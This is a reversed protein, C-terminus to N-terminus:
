RRHPVHAYEKGRQKKLEVRLIKEAEVRSLRFRYRKLYYDQIREVSLHCVAKDRMMPGCHRRDMRMEMGPRRYDPRGKKQAYMQAQSGLLLIMVAAMLIRRKM